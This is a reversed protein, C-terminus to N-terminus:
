EDPMGPLETSLVEAKLAASVAAVASHVDLKRFLNQIHTRATNESIHLRAAMATRDVGTVLLDLVERERKTLLGLRSPTEATASPRYSSLLLSLLPPSIWIEGSAAWRVAQALDALRSATTLVIASAGRQLAQATLIRDRVDLLLVLAAASQKQVRTLLDLHSTTPTDARGKNSPEDSTPWCLNYNVVVVDPKQQAALAAVDDQSAGRGVVRISRETLYTALSDRMVPYKDGIVITNETM